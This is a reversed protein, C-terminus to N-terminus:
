PSLFKHSQNNGVSIAHAVLHNSGWVISHVPFNTALVRIPMLSRADLLVVGHKGAAVALYGNRLVIDFAPFDTVHAVLEVKDGNLEFVKIGEQGCALFVRKGWRVAGAIGNFSTPTLNKM